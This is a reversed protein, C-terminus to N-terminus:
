RCHKTCIWSPAYWIVRLRQNENLRPMVSFDIDNLYTNKESKYPDFCVKQLGYVTV